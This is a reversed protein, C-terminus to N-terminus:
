KVLWCSSICLDLINYVKFFLMVSFPMTMIVGDDINPDAGAELLFIVIGTFGENVHEDFCTAWDSRKVNV